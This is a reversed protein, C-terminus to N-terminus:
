SPAPNKPRSAFGACQLVPLQPYRTYRSDSESRLCYFFRSGKGSVVERTYQCEACLGIQPTGSTATAM